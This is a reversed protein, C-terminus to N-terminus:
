AKIKASNNEKLKAKLDAVRAEREIALNNIKEDIITIDNIITLAEEVHYFPPCDKGM